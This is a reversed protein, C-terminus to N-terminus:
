LSKFNFQVKELLTVDNTVLMATATEPPINVRQSYADTKIYIVNNGYAANGESTKSASFFKIRQWGTNPATLKTLDLSVLKASTTSNNIVVVGPQGLANIFATSKLLPTQGHVDTSYVKSAGKGLGMTRSLLRWAKAQPLFVVKNDNWLYYGMTQTGPGLVVNTVNMPLLNFYSAGGIARDNLYDVLRNATFITAKDGSKYPISDANRSEYNWETIFIPMQNNFYKASYDKYVKLMNNHDLDYTHFSLFDPRYTTRIADDALLAGLVKSIIPNSEVGAGLPIKKNDAMEADVEKISKYTNTYYAKYADERTTNSLTLTALGGHDPENGIELYDIDNRYLKYFKKIIDNYVAYNKVVGNPTGDYTLWNPAYAIVGIVKMNNKKATLIQNKVITITKMDWTAPDQINNKNSLYDEVTVANRPISYPLALDQRVSTVGVDALQKYVDGHEVPPPHSGGFIMPSGTAIQNGFDITVPLPGTAIASLINKRQGYQNVLHITIYFFSVLGVLNILVIGVVKKVSLKKNM